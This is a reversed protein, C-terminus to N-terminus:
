RSSTPVALAKADRRRVIRVGETIYEEALKLRNGEIMGVPIRSVADLARRPDAGLQICLASLDYPDRMGWRDQAHSSCVLRVRNKLASGMQGKLRSILHSRDAARLFTSFNAELAGRCLRAMSATFPVKGLPDLELIDVRGDRAATLAVQMNMGEVAVLEFKGRVSRLRRLLSHRSRERIELRKAVEVGHEAFVKAAMAVKPLEHEEVRLGVYRFGLRAAEEAVGRIVTSNSLSPAVCADAFSRM